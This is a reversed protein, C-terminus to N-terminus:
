LKYAKKANEIQGAETTENPYLLYSPALIPKASELKIKTISSFPFRDGAIKYLIEHLSNFESEGQTVIEATGKLQYGKQVLIDLVSVCINPNSKINKVSNPSAINAILLFEDEHHCFIEKPSVNPINDHSSTALWCLVSKEIANKIEPTLIM